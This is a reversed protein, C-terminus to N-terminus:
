LTAIEGDGSQHWASKGNYANIWSKHGVVLESYYRNPLKADLTFTGAEGDSAGTFTGELALTQIRSIAREGGAAKLYQEVIKAASQAHAPTACGTFLVSTVLISVITRM